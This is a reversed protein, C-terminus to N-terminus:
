GVLPYSPLDRVPVGYAVGLSHIYESAAPAPPHYLETVKAFQARFGREAEVVVGWAEVQGWIYGVDGEEQTPIYQARLDGFTTIEAFESKQHEIFSTYPIDLFHWM